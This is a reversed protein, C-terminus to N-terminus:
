MWTFDGTTMNRTMPMSGGVYPLVLAPTVVPALKPARPTAKHTLDHWIREGNTMWPTHAAHRGRDPVNTEPNTLWTYALCSPIVTVLLALAIILTLTNNSM